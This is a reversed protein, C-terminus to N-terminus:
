ILFITKICILNYSNRQFDLVINVLVFSIAKSVNCKSCILVLQVYSIDYTIFNYMSSM